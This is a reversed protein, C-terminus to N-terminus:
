DEYYRASMATKSSDMWESDRLKKDALENAERRLVTCIVEMGPRRPQGAFCDELLRRLASPWKPDIKPRLGLHCVSYEIKGGHLKGYPTEMSLIEWLLIGFSYVDAKETYNHEMAVEPAMYRITGTDGTLKYGGHKEKDFETALGFDFLKIDGRVDFGLNDPKLDRYIINRDHLYELASAIDFSVALRESLFAKQKKGRFDFLKVFGNEDKDKWFAIKDTLTQYLRDLLIFSDAGCSIFNESVARMKIINPHKVATLFKAEIAMDVLTNVFLGPDRLAGAKMSKLAYRCDQKGKRGKRLCHRQLYRRNQIVGFDDDFEDEVPVETETEDEGDNQLAIKQVEFVKFFGGEGLEAGLEIEERRLSPLDIAHNLIDWDKTRREIKQQVRELLYEVTYDGIMMKCDKEETLAPKNESESSCEDTKSTEGGVGGVGGEVEVEDNSDLVKVPHHHNDDSSSGNNTITNSTTNEVDTKPASSTTTTAENETTECTM